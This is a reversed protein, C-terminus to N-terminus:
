IEMAYLIPYNNKIYYDISNKAESIADKMGHEGLFGCCSDIVENNDDKVVFNYVEGILYSDYLSTEITLIKEVKERIKKNIRKCNFEKYVDERTAYIYGVIMSDWGGCPKDPEQFEGISITIGSHDYLYLPAIIAANRENVLYDYTEQWSNFDSEKMQEDGLNYRRHECYMKGLNDWERPNYFSDYDESYTITINFGKYKEKHAEM